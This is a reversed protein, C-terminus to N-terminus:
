HKLNAFTKAGHKAFYYYLVFCVISNLLVIVVGTIWFAVQFIALAMAGVFLLMSWIMTGFMSGFVAFGQKVAVTENQWDFKPFKVGLFLGFYATFFVISEACLIMFIADIVSLKLAISVIISAIVTCPTCIAIHVQRKARLIKKPDIPAVQLIWLNKDELSISPASVMNMSSMFMIVMTAMVPVLPIILPDENIIPVLEAGVFIIMVAVLITMINGMGANLIYASSTFFRKIEKNFLAKDPSSVKNEKAVYKIKKVGTNTTIIKIFSHNLIFYVILAPIITCLAVFLLSLADGEAMAKGMWYFLYTKKFGSMDVPVEEESGASSGVFGGFAGCAIFYIAMFLVTFLVSVITKNKLKASIISIIWAVLVSLSLTFLPLLIFVVLTSLAGWVSYGVVVAHVVIAPLLVITELAYNVVLLMLIRSLFIYRPPIPMSLLLENDKSEFIQTKVTFVSGIICLLSALISALTQSAWYEGTEKALTDIGFMMAGFAFMLYGALFAFLIILFVKTVMSQQKKKKNLGAGSFSAFFASLKSKLLTKLM